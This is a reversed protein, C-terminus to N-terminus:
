KKELRIEIEPIPAGYLPWWGNNEDFSFSGPQFDNMEVEVRIGALHVGGQRKYLSFNGSAPLSAELRIKGENNTEGQGFNENPSAITVSAGHIPQGTKADVVRISLEQKSAGIWGTHQVLPIISLLWFVFSACAALLLGWHELITEDVYACFDRLAWFLFVSLFFLLASGVSFFIPYDPLYKTEYIWVGVAFLVVSALFVSLCIRRNM